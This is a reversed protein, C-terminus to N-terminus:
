EFIEDGLEAMVPDFAPLGTGTDSVKLDADMPVLTSTPEDCSALVMLIPLVLAAHSIRFRM